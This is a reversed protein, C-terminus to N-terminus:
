NKKLYSISLFFKSQRQNIKYLKQQPQQQQQQPPSATSFDIVFVIFLLNFFILARQLNLM